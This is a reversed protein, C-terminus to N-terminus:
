ELEESIWEEFLAREVVAGLDTRGVSGDSYPFTATVDRNIPNGGKELMAADPIRAGNCVRSGNV